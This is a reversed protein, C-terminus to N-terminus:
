LSLVFRKLIIVLKWQQSPQQPDTYLSIIHSSTFADKFRLHTVDCLSLLALDFGADHGESHVVDVDVNPSTRSLQDVISTFNISKKVWSLSDSTVIFQVRVPGRGEQQGVFRSM